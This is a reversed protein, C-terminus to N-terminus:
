ARRAYRSVMKSDIFAALFVGIAYMLIDFPDFVTALAYVGFYQLIESTSVLLFVLLAKMYWHRLFIFDDESLVLLFYFGFPLAIDAFYNHFLTDINEGAWDAGIFFMLAIVLEIGIVVPARKNTIKM